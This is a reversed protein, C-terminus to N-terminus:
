KVKCSVPISGVGFRLSAECGTVTPRAQLEVIQAKLTEDFQALLGIQEQQADKHKILARVSVESTELRHEIADLRSLIPSLDVPPNSPPPPDPPPTGLVPLPPRWRDFAVPDVRNWTPTNAGGGDILVDFIATQGGQQYAIIDTAFGQCNNGSPKDLLGAGEAKLKWAALNVIKFAGCPGSLDAGSALLEAKAQAVTDPHSQAFLPSAVLLGVLVFVRTM